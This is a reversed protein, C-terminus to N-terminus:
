DKKIDDFVTVKGKKHKGTEYGDYVFRDGDQYFYLCTSQDIILQFGREGSQSPVIDIRESNAFLANAKDAIDPDIGMKRTLRRIGALPWVRLLLRTWFDIGGEKLSKFDWAMKKNELDLEDFDEM